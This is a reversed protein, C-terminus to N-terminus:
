IPPWKEAEARTVDHSGGLDAARVVGTGDCAFTRRAYTVTPRLVRILSPMVPRNGYRLPVAYAFYQKEDRAPDGSLVVVYRYTPGHLREWELDNLLGAQRLQELTGYEGLGNKNIDLTVHDPFFNTSSFTYATSGHAGPNEMAPYNSVILRHDAPLRLRFSAQAIPRGWARTTSLIYCGEPIRAKQWCELSIWKAERPGFVLRVRPAAAPGRLSLERVAHGDETVETLMFAQPVPHNADVPFPTAL